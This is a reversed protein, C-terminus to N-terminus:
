SLRQAIENAKKMGQFRGDEIYVRNTVGGTSRKLKKKM